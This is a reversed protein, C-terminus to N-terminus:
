WLKNGGGRSIRRNLLHTKMAKEDVKRHEVGTVANSYYQIIHLLMAAENM